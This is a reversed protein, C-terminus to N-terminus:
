ETKITLGLLEALAEARSVTIDTRGALWGFVTAYSCTETKEALYALHVTKMDHKALYDKIATKIADNTLM